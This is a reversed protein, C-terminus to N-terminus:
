VHAGVTMIASRALSKILSSQCSGTALVASFVAALNYSPRVVYIRKHTSPAKYSVALWCYCRSHSSHIRDITWGNRQKTFLEAYGGLHYPGRRALSCQLWRVVCVCICWFRTSVLTRIKTNGCGCCVWPVGFQLVHVACRQYCRIASIGM